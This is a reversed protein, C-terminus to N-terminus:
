DVVQKSCTAKSERFCYKVTRVCTFHPSRLQSNCSRYLTRRYWSSVPQYGQRRKSYFASSKKLSGQLSDAREVYSTCFFGKSKQCLWNLLDLVVQMNWITGPNMYICAYQLPVRSCQVKVRDYRCGCHKYTISRNCTLFPLGVNESNKHSMQDTGLKLANTRFKSHITPAYGMCLMVISSHRSPYNRHYGSTFYVYM